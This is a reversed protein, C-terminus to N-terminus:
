LLEKNPTIEALLTKIGVSKTPLDISLIFRHMINTTIIITLSLLWPTEWESSITSSLFHWINHLITGISSCHTFQLVRIGTLVCLIWKAFNGELPRLCHYLRSTLFNHGNLVLLCRIYYQFYRGKFIHYKHVCYLISINFNQFWHKNLPRFILYIILKLVIKNKSHDSM